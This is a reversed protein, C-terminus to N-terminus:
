TMRYIKKVLFSMRSSICIPITTHTKNMHAEKIKLLRLENEYKQLRKLKINYERIQRATKHGQITM